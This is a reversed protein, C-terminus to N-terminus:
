LEEHQLRVNAKNSSKSASDAQEAELPIMAESMTSPRAEQQNRGHGHIFSILTALPIPEHYNGQFTVPPHGGAPYLKLTPYGTILEPVDNSSVDIKAVSIKDSLGIDRYHVALEELVDHSQLCYDCWPTYFEVLVDRTDDFATERFTDGVLEICLGQQKVPVPQSRVEPKLKGAVFDQVFGTISEANVSGAKLPFKETSTVNEIAFGLKTGDALNLIAARQPYRNSDVTVFTLVSSFRRALPYLLDVLHDRETPSAVLIQALPLNTEAFSAYVEPHLEGILPTGYKRSFLQLADHDFPGEYSIRREDFTSLLLIGPRTVGEDNARSSNHSIAFAYEGRLQEAVQSYLEILDKDQDDIFAVISVYDPSSFEDYNADSLELVAPGHQREIFSLLRYYVLHKTSFKELSLPNYYASTDLDGRYITLRGRGRSLRVEPVHLVGVDDCVKGDTSCDVRVFRTKPSLDVAQEFQTTIEDCEVCSPTVFLVLALNDSNVLDFFDDEGLDSVSHTWVFTSYTLLLLVHPVFM